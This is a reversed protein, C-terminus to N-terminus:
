LLSSAVITGHNALDYRGCIHKFIRFNGFGYEQLKDMLIGITAGKDNLLYPSYEIRIKKFEQVAKDNIVIFEAGKIDLDLLYPSEINYEKLITTLSVSKVNIKNKLKLDFLSSGGSGSESVPFEITEDRGLVCNGMTIKKSLEQNLGINKLAVGFSRTDPEFSYVIAGKSAYYLATDGVFGGAQVVIKGKLNECHHIDFLYTEAMIGQDFGSLMFKIGDPTEITTSASSTKGSSSHGNSLNVRWMGKEDGFKVGYNLIFSALNLVDRKSEKDFYFTQGNTLVIKGSSKFVALPNKYTLKEGELTREKWRIWASILRIAEGM